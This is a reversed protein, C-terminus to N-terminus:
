IDKPSPMCSFAFLTFKIFMMEHIFYILSSKPPAVAEHALKLCDKFQIGFM